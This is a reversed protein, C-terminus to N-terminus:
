SHINDKRCARSDATASGANLSPPLILHTGINEANVNSDVAVTDVLGQYTDARIQSQNYRILNLHRQETTAWSDVAYEQFMKGAM